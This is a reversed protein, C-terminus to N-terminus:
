GLDKYYSIDKIVFDIGIRLADLHDLAISKYKYDAILNGEGDFVGYRSNKNVLDIKYDM